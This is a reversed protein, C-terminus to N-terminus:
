AAIKWAVLPSELRLPSGILAQPSVVTFFLLVSLGPCFWPSVDPDM